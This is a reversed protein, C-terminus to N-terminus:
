CSSPQHNRRAASVSGGAAPAGWPWRLGLGLRQPRTTPIGDHGRITYGNQAKSKTESKLSPPQRRKTASPMATAHTGLARNMLRLPRRDHDDKQRKPSSMCCYPISTSVGAGASPEQHATTDQAARPGVAPRLAGLFATGPQHPEAPLRRPSPPAATPKRRDPVTGGWSRLGLRM